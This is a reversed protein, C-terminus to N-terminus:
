ETCLLTGDEQECLLRGRELYIWELLAWVTMTKGGPILKENEIAAQAALRPNANTAANVLECLEGLRYETNQLKLTRNFTWPNFKGTEAQAQDWDIRPLDVAVEEGRRIDAKARTMLWVPGAFINYGGPPLNRITFVSQDAPVYNFFLANELLHGMLPHEPGLVKMFDWLGLGLNRSILVFPPIDPRQGSDVPMKVRLLTDYQAPEVRIEKTQGAQVAINQVGGYYATKGEELVMTAFGSPRSPKAAIACKFVDIQYEGTDLETFAFERCPSVKGEELTPRPWQTWVNSAFTSLHRDRGPPIFRRGDLAELRFIWLDRQSPEGTDMVSVHITAAPKLSINVEVRPNDPQVPAELDRRVYQGHTAVLPHKMFAVGELVFHGLDDTETHVYIGKEKRGKYNAGGSDGFDGIGVYAGAIPKGTAADTVVGTITGRDAAPKESAEQAGAVQNAWGAMEMGIIIVWSIIINKM